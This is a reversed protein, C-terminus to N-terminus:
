GRGAVAWAALVAAAWLVLLVRSPLGLLREEAWSRPDLAIALLTLGRRRALRAAALWSVAGWGGLLALLLTSLPWPAVPTPTM